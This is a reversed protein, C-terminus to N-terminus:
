IQLLNTKFCLSIELSFLKVSFIYNIVYLIYIFAFLYFPLLYRFYFTQGVNLRLIPVSALKICIPVVMFIIYIETSDVKM